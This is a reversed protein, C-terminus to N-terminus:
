PGLPLREGHRLPVRAGPTLIGALNLPDCPSVSPEPGPGERRLRRMLRVAEPLAFQEGAYGAVFRGGRLDGRLEMRRCRRLLDRWLLPQRERELLSRFLVGYRKLLNQIVFAAAEESELPEARTDLLSWRGGSIVAQRRKSPPLLLQRLSLFSDSTVLGASILEGLGREADSALQTPGRTLDELFLAGRAGLAERISAAQWSLQSEDISPRLAMWRSLDARPFLSIPTTRLPAKGSGWLRGWALQGGFALQDLWEPLYRELRPRLLEPEWTASPAEWGALSEILSQVGLPGELRYGERLHQWAGLYSLFDATSLPEIERRLSELTLRSIRALLRRNCWAEQGDLQTRLLAGQRELEHFLPLEACGAPVRVPGLAEMRGRLLELPDRPAETALWRGAECSARGAQALELLWPKWARAEDEHVYGMWLLAEHLEELNRPDPWAQERVLEVAKPDLQGLEEAQKPDLVRRSLVAQTRREELPADDLFAYPRASLISRAFSSPTPTDICRTEIAGQQLDRLVEVLGDIDMAEHLCDALTQRVLPHELPIEIDGPPLTEGCALVDPFAQVLLDDARMRVLPAPVRQGGRMRQVLLSRSVNWRWRTSFMPLPLLAQSVLERVSDPHLYRFVEELPFSHQPGLSIVISDENAAAQLEFGFSRCFRKRLGLGFARNIRGGFPSHLVLQMGGTEDFFRELILRKTTPVAGLSQAGEEIYSRLEREVGEGLQMGDLAHGAPLEGHVWARVEGVLASLERSRAPAEGVWFPLSPPAGQADAVRVVGSEVRLIRWSANGLQFIDGANAEVAFDEDLMGVLEGRPELLVRYQTSDPIAGGSTIATLRARRTALLRGGVGDRHLLAGRGQTHLQVCEDFEARTLDRYPWARRLREFLAAEDWPAPVCEAVIEQALIDLPASPQPTRDLEGRELALRLALAQVLEDQTLAFLRGKPVRGVGHGARGVRQILTAISPPAGVQCVLDVDGIDIGLELSATCVLASLSGAKLREEADMRREKSLSSHHCTIREEGFYRALQAAVRESMKRTSVFVLTSRHEAILEALRAHIESWTEHSCVASLPSPPLEIDLDTHRRHGADVISCERGAGVLFRAVDAIPKQTASLGIRQLPAPGLAELRELCLALHAGRKSGLVAHVEDVIVSRVSQLMARGSDSTLLIHLSEPTTVLIHPARRRMRARETASTDGSRVAVEIAPFSPDLECLRALPGRLNKQIDNGLAKLPSLYLVRTEDPLEHGLRALEDIAALFAALTKGSGTPAAILTNEGARIRPWGELQPQTPTGVEDGFWQSIAPHFASLPMATLM